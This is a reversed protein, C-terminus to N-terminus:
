SKEGEALIRVRGGEIRLRRDGFLRVAEPYAICEEAFVRDAVDDPGDEASVPVARQLVIPGHDYVNDVFHVTCGSVKVGTAVVAEHVHHGYMGKGCFAPILAPHINLIRGAYRDPVRILRLFGALTVLDADYPDITGFVAESFAEAGKCQQREVLVADVGRARARDLGKVGPRDAIVVRVEADLSGDDIRDFFNQLTRGGGSLLVALKLAM